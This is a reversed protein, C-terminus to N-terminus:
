WKKKIVQKVAPLGNEQFPRINVKIISDAVVLAPDLIPGHGPESRPAPAQSRHHRSSKVKRLRGKAGAWNRGVRRSAPTM